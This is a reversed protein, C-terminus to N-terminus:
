EGPDRKRRRTPPPDPEVPRVFGMRLLRERREPRLDALIQGPQVGPWSRVVQVPGADHLERTTYQCRDIAM